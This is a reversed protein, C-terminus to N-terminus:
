GLKSKYGTEAGAVPGIGKPQYGGTDGAVITKKVSKKLLNRMAFDHEAQLVAQSNPSAAPSASAVPASNIADAQKNDKGFLNAPDLANGPEGKGITLGLPDFFRKLSFGGGGGM